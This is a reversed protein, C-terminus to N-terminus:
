KDKVVIKRKEPDRQQRYLVAVNGILTLLVAGTQKEIEASLEKKERKCEGFKVKILEHDDLARNVEAVVEGTLGKQGVIVLSELHHALGKLYRRQKAGLESM